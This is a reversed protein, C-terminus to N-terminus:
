IVKESCQQLREGSRGFPRKTLHWGSCIHCRYTYLPHGAATARTIGMAIATLQDSFRKKSTCAREIQEKTLGNTRTQAAM